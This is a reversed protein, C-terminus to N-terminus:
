RLSLGLAVVSMLAEYTAVEPATMSMTATGLVEDRHVLARVVLAHPRRARTLGAPLLAASPFPVDIWRSELDGHADFAWVVRSQTRDDNTFRTVVCSDIGLRGMEARLDLWFSDTGVLPLLRDIAFLSGHLATSAGLRRTVELRELAAGTMKRAQFLVDDARLSLATDRLSNRVAKRFVDAVAAIADLTDRDDVVERLRLELYTRFDQGQPRSLEAILLELWRSEWGAGMASLRGRAARSLKSTIADKSTLLAHAGGATVGRTSPPQSEPADTRCGCSRRVVLASPLVNRMSVELRDLVECATRAGVRGMEVTPQQVTTLPPIVHKSRELDDFGTVAVDRPCAVGRSDLEAIAGEATLDNACVIADIESIPIGRADLLEVVGARGAPTLFGQFTIRDEPLHVGLEALADRCANVREVSEDNHRPGGIVALKRCGHAEVLHRCAEAVGNRNDVLVTPVGDLDMALSVLPVGLGGLVREGHERGVRNIMTTTLSVVADVSSPGVAALVTNYAAHLGETAFSGTVFVLLNAGRQTAFRTAGEIVERQYDTELTDVLLGLTPGSATTLAAPADGSRGSPRSHRQSWGM